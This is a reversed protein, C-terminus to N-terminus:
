NRERDRRVALAQVRLSRRSRGGKAGVHTGDIFAETLDIKGRDVLEEALAKILTWFVRAEVWEQM